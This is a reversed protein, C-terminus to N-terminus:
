RRRRAGAGGRVATPLSSGTAAPLAALMESVAAPAPWPTGYQMGARIAAPDIAVDRPSAAPLRVDVVHLGNLMGPMGQAGEVPHSAVRGDADVVFRFTRLVAGESRVDCSWLGPHEGLFVLNSPDYGTGNSAIRPGWWLREVELRARYWGVHRIESNPDLREDVEVTAYPNLSVTLDDIREEGVRCRLMVDFGEYRGSFATYFSLRQPEDPNTQQMRPHEMYAFATGLLDSADLQYMTGMIQRSGDSRVWYPYGRVNVRLTRMVASTEAVDDLYVAEVVIEGTATLLHASDTSCELRGADGDIADFGCRTSVLTRGGQKVDLRIADQRNGVGYVIGDVRVVYGSEPDSNWVRVHLTTEDFYHAPAQAAASSAQLGVMLVVLMSLGVLWSNRM